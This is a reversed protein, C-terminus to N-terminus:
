LDYSYFAKITGVTNKELKELQSLVFQNHAYIEKLAPNEFHVNEKALAMCFVKISEASLESHLQEEKVTLGNFLTDFQHVVQQDSPDWQDSYKKNSIMHPAFEKLWDAQVESAHTL